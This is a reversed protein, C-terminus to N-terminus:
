SAALEQLGKITARDADVLGVTPHRAFVPGREALTLARRAAERVAAQDESGEALRIIALNWRFHDDPFPM